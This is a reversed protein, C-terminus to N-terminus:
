SRLERIYEEPDDIQDWASLGARRLEEIAHVVDGLCPQTFDNITFEYLKWFRHIWRATGTAAIQEYLHQGLRRVLDRSRVDCYLIRRRGPVRLLCRMGTAGGVREIRGVVTTEGTVFLGSSIRRFDDEGVVFLPQRGGAKTTVEVRCGISKAVESLSQIPRLATVLSDGNARDHHAVSLLEGVRTLNALAEDPAHSLCSYVASGRRVHILGIGKEPPVQQQEFPDRGSALDQVASLVDSVARLPIREPVLGPAALRVDFTATTDAMASKKKAM